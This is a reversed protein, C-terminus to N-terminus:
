GILLMQYSYNEAQDLRKLRQVYCEGQYFAQIPEKIALARPIDAESEIDVLRFDGNPYEQLLTKIFGILAGAAINDGSYLGKVLIIVPSTNGAQNLAQIKTLLKTAVALADVENLLEDFIIENTVAVRDASPIIEWQPIVYIDRKPHLALQLQAQTTKRAQFGNLKLVVRGVSDLLLVDTTIQQETKEKLTVYAFTPIDAHPNSVIEDIM